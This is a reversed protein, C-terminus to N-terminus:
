PLKGAVLMRNMLLGRPIWQLQDDITTNTAFDADDDANEAEDGGATPLRDGQPTWAGAGNRGHSVVVAPVEGVLTTGAVATLVVIDGPTCLAFAAQRPGDGLAPNYAGSHDPANLPCAAGFDTQGLSVGRAFHATVRYSYRRGWADSEPLGLTSWPLVGHVATCALTAGAGTTAECGAVTAAGGAPCIGGTGTALTPLAPCPLRGNILAFGILAEQAAALAKATEQRNRMDQQGSLPVLMGGILLSVIALVVALETLTFGAVPRSTM